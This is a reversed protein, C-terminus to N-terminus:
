FKIASVMMDKDFIASFIINGILDYEFYMGQKKGDVYTCDISVVGNEHYHTVNGHLQGSLNYYKKERISGNTYYTEFCITKYKCYQIDSIFYNSDLKIAHETM